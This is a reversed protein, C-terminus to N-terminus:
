NGILSLLATRHSKAMFRLWSFDHIRTMKEGKITRFYRWPESFHFRDIEVHRFDAICRMSRLPTVFELSPWM